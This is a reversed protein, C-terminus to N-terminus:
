YFNAKASSRIEGYFRSQRLMVETFRLHIYLYSRIPAMKSRSCPKCDQEPHLDLPGHTKDQFLLSRIIGFLQDQQASHLITVELSIRLELLSYQFVLILFM